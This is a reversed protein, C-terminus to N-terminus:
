ECGETRVSVEVQGFDNASLEVTRGDVNIRVEDANLVYDSDPSVLYALEEISDEDVSVAQTGISEFEPTDDSM